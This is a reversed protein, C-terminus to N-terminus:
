HLSAERVTRSFCFQKTETQVEDIVIERTKRACGTQSIILCVMAMALFRKIDARRM